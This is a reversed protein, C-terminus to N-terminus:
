CLDTCSILMCRWRPACRWVACCTLSGVRMTRALNTCARAVIPHDSGRAEQLRALVSRHLDSAESLLGQLTANARALPPSSLPWAPTLCPLDPWQHM